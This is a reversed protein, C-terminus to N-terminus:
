DEDAASSRRLAMFNIAWPASSAEEAEACDRRATTAIVAPRSCASFEASTERCFVSEKRPSITSAILCIAALKALMPAAASRWAEETFIIVSSSAWAALM